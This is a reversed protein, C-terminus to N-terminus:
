PSRALSKEVCRRELESSGLLECLEPATSTYWRDRACRRRLDPHRIRACTAPEKAAAYFWCADAIDAQTLEACARSPLSRAVLQALCEERWAVADAQDISLCAARDFHRTPQLAQVFCARRLPADPSAGVHQCLQPRGVVLEFTSLAVVPVLGPRLWLWPVLAGLLVVDPILSPGLRQWDPHSVALVLALAFWALHVCALALATKFHRPGLRTSRFLVVLLASSLLPLTLMRFQAALWAGALGAALAAVAQAVSGLASARHGESSM